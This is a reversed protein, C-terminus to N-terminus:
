RSRWHRVHSSKFHHRLWRQDVALISSSRCAGRQSILQRRGARLRTHNYIRLSKLSRPHAHSPEPEASCRHLHRTFSLPQNSFMEFSPGTTYGLLAHLHETDARSGMESAPLEFPIRRMHVHHLLCNEVLHVTEVLTLIMACDSPQRRVWLFRTPKNFAMIAGCLHSSFAISRACVNRATPHPAAGHSGNRHTRSRRTNASTDGPDRSSIYWLLRTGERSVRGRTRWVLVGALRFIPWCADRRRSICIFATKDAMVAVTGRLCLFITTSLIFALKSDLPVGSRGKRCRAYDIRAQYLLM